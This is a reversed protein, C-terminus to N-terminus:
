IVRFCKLSSFSTFGVRIIIQIYDPKNNNLGIRVSRLKVESLVEEM